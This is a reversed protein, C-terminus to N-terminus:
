KVDCAENIANHAATFGLLSYTDTTKTGRSSEGGVVMDNGIRMARIMKADDEPARNWATDGDTFMDFKESGITATADSDEKYTYGTEISIENIRKPRAWTRHAVFISVAGRKTYDGTEKQPTGWVVCVTKGGEEFSYAQWDKFTWLPKEQASVGGPALAIGAVLLLLGKGATVNM